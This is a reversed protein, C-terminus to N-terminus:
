EVERVGADGPDLRQALLRRAPREVVLAGADDVDGGVQRHLREGPQLDAAPAGEERGRLAAEGDGARGGAELRVVGLGPVLDGGVEGGHAVGLHARAEVDGPEALQGGHVAPLGLDVELEVRVELAGDVEGAYVHREDVVQGGPGGVGEEGLLDHQPRAKLP